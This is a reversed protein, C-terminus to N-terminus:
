SRLDGYFLDCFEKYEMVCNDKSGNLHFLITSIESIYKNNYLLSNVTNQVDNIYNYLLTFIGLGKEEYEKVNVVENKDKDHIAIFFSFYDINLLSLFKNFPIRLYKNIGVDVLVSEIMKKENQILSLCYDYIEEANQELIDQTKDTYLFIIRM